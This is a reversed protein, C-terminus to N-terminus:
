ASQADSALPATVALLSLLAAATALAARAPRHTGEWRRSAADLWRDAVVTAAAPRAALADVGAGIARLGRGTVSWPRALLRRLRGGTRPAQPKVLILWALQLPLRVADAWRLHRLDIHPFFPALRDLRRDLRVLFGAPLLRIPAM